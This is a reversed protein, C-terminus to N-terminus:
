EGGDVVEIKSKKATEEEMEEPSEASDVSEAADRKRKQRRAKDKEYKAKNKKRDAVVSPTDPFSQKNGRVRIRYVTGTGDHTPVSASVLPPSREANDPDVAAFVRDTTRIMSLVLSWGKLEGSLFLKLEAETMSNELRNGSGAKKHLCMGHPLGIEDELYFQCAAELSTVDYATNCETLLYSRVVSNAQPPSMRKLDGNELEMRWLPDRQVDILFGKTEDCDEEKGPIIGTRTILIYAAWEGEALKEEISVDGHENLWKKSTTEGIPHAVGAYNGMIEKVKRMISEQRADGDGFVTAVGGHQLFLEAIEAFMEQRKAAQWKRNAENKATRRALADTDGARCLAAEKENRKTQLENTAAQRALADPDGARCLAAEKETHKTNAARQYRDKETKAAVREPDNDYIALEETTMAARKEEEAQNAAAYRKRETENTAARQALADPDGALRLAAEKKRHKTCAAQNSRAEEAKVAVREPDNDYIALEETTMAARKEEEAQKATTYRKSDAEKTAAQRALADPDGALRLAAEKENHKADYEKKIRARDAKAAVREPDNDYDKLEDPTMAARKEEEARNEIIRRLKLIASDASGKQQPPTKKPDTAGALLTDYDERQKPTAISLAYEVFQLREQHKRQTEAQKKAELVMKEVVPMRKEIVNRLKVAANGRYQGRKKATISMDRSAAMLKLYVVLEKQNFLYLGAVEDLTPQSDTEPISGDSSISM